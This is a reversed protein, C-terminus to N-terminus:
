SVRTAPYNGYQQPSLQWTYGAYKVFVNHDADQRIPLSKLPVLINGPFKANGAITVADDMPFLKLWVDAIAGAAKDATESGKKLLKYLLYGGVGVAGLIIITDIKM